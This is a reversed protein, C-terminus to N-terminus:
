LHFFFVCAFKHDLTHVKLQKLKIMLPLLLPNTKKTQKNQKKTKNKDKTKTKQFKSYLSTKQLLESLNQGTLLSFSHVNWGASVSCRIEALYKISILSWWHLMCNIKWYFAALNKLFLSSISSHLHDFLASICIKNSTHVVNIM